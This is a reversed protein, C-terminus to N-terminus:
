AVVGDRNTAMLEEVQDLRMDEGYRDMLAELQAVLRTFPDEKGDTDETSLAVASAATPSMNDPIEGDYLDITQAEGYISFGTLEGDKVREWAEDSFKVGLMWTGKPYERSETGDPLTFTQPEKLTWSEIPVGQGAFLDHDTDIKRHEELFTHAAQEIEQSPIVDGQKDTENPILVPAFAKQEETADAETDNDEDGTPNEVAKSWIPARGGGDVTVTMSKPLVIPCNVGWDAGKAETDKALIWQSDIAPDSVGSVYTVELNTLMSEADEVSELQAIFEAVDDETKVDPSDQILTCATEPDEVEGDLAFVCAEYDEFPGVKETETQGEEVATVLDQVSEADQVASKRINGGGRSGMVDILERLLERESMNARANAQELDDWDFGWVNAESKELPEIVVPGFAWTGDGQALCTEVAGQYSLPDIPETGKEVPEDDTSGFAAELDETNWEEPNAMKQVEEDDSTSDSEGSHGAIPGLSKTVETPSWTDPSANSDGEVDEFQHKRIVTRGKSEDM